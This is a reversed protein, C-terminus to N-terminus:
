KKPPRLRGLLDKAKQAQMPDETTEALPELIAAAGKLDGKNALAVAENFRDVFRNYSVAHRIEEIRQTLTQRRIDSKTKARTQELLALAEVLKNEGVLDEARTHDEDLLAERANEVMEPKGQPVLVREILDEAKSRQGTRTYAIALNHAVDPRSPLLRHATELTKVAEETLEEEVQYTYGLRAWGDGFDPRLAVVKALSARAQRLSNEGEAELLSLAYLYQVLFDDPALRVAKEYFPRAEAPQGARERLYGLGATAPGHEPQAELAARFHQEAAARHDDGLNTLLDGLRFLLDARSLPRASMTFNAEPRIPARTYNFLYSQVYTKLERELVSPDAGFAKQFLADPSEGGQALRLYESAQRRREPSGSLLYHVLAWSQAYFAGRRSEENYEPSDQHVSFLTALPLPPNRRLWVVHEPIPLGIRAEQEGVQFTSYYEALGENLWLPLSAYNNRLVYHLYEHYVITREDGRQDGDVAVFNALERSLFYGGSDLPKGNYLRQYPRFSDANRFIFIYTPYPSNLALGPSLQALADRLRELDAAMRRTDKEGASSFLTFNATRLEIWEEKPKPLAHAASFMGSVLAVVVLAAAHPSFRKM